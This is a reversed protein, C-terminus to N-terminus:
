HLSQLYDILSAFEQVTLSNVLGSPMMSTKLVEESSIDTANITLITGTVNRLEIIKEDRATVFGSAFNGDKLQFNYTQFGQAVEAGPDIVHTILQERNFLNGVSGLYPGKQPEDPLISHCVNCSQRNFLEKGQAADGEIHLAAVSADKISLEGVLKKNQDDKFSALIKEAQEKFKPDKTAKKVLPAFATARYNKISEIFEHTPIGMGKILKNRDSESTLPSQVLTCITDYYLSKQAPKLKKLKPAVKTLRQMLSIRHSPSQVFDRSLAQYLDSEKEIAALAKLNALCWEAYTFGTVQLAARFAQIRMPKPRETDTFISLLDKQQEFPHSPQELLQEVPDVEIPLNLQPLSLNHRRVQFLTAKQEAESMKSVAKRLAEAINKSEGWAVGLYYPGASNPRTGWWTIGDWARERHYLRLLAAVVDLSEDPNESAELAAIFKAVNEPTHIQRLAALAAPRQQKDKLSAHLEEVPAMTILARNATHPIAQHIHAENKILPLRNKEVSLALLTKTTQSIELRAAGVVAQLQIRPNEHMLFSEIVPELALKQHDKRDLLARLAYEALDDDKLWGKLLDASGSENRLNIAYLAALRSELSSSSKNAAAQLAKQIGATTRDVIEWQSQQRLVASGQDLNSILEEISAKSLDPFKRYKWGKPKAQVIHGVIAGPEIRAGGGEFNALYLRSSGDVDLDVLKNISLTVKDSNIFTAEHPRLDHTYLKGWSITNIRKNLWDPFGPEELYLAGCGSGGGYTFLPPMADDSFNKYLNPYGMHALPTLHHLRMDWGDGDNTNDMAIIDLRHNIAIDYTNRTGQTYVELDIGDLRMRIVGGTMLTAKSGDSGVASAGFDGVAVYIWGDIGIRLDNTSHDAGRKWKLDHAFGSALVKREDAIGDGNTDRCASIYPPHVLYLTGNLFHGGRPTDINPLYPTAFDARGDDDEDVLRWVSGQNPLRGLGANGDCLAYIAGGPEAVVSVVSNIEPAMAFYSLKHDAFKPLARFPMEPGQHKLSIKKLPSSSPTAKASPNSAPTEESTLPRVRIKRWAVEYPGTGDKIGHIQLGIFGSSHTAHREAPITTTIVKQGNIWTTVQDGKAEVRFLNWEGGIVFTHNRIQDKLTLWGRWGQGYINGSRTGRDPNKAAFEVQPGEVPGVKQKGKPARNASRIQVGSNLEPDILKTEFELEFDGYKENTCLFTSGLGEKATGIITGNEVRFSGSENRETWGELNKGNFLDIWEEAPASLPYVIFATVAIVSATWSYKFLNLIM